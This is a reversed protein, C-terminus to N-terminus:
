LFMLFLATMKPNGRERKATIIIDMMAEKSMIIKENLKPTIMLTITKLATRYTARIRIM